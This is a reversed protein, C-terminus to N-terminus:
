FGGQPGAAPLNLVDAFYRGERGEGWAEGIFRFVQEIASKIELIQRDHKGALANYERKVSLFQKKGEGERGAIEMYREMLKGAMRYEEKQSLTLNNAAERGDREEQLQRHFTYIMAYLPLSEEPWQKKVNKLMEEARKLAREQEEARVLKRKLRGLLTELLFVRDEEGALAAKAALESTFDGKIITEAPYAAQCKLFRDYCLAFERAIEEDTIYQRILKGDVRFQKKEYLYVAESLDEWGRATAYEEGACSSVSYFWNRNRELFSLIAAHIGRGYAYSKWVNFDAEVRFWKMRDLAKLGFRGGNGGYEPPNGAAVVVWGEPLRRSGFKRYQLFHLMAPALAEPTGDIEDLFLIGERKGSEKMVEYVAAIIESMTYESVQWIRGEYEKKAIHPLGLVSQRTHHTMSCSVLAIDLESAAQEVIATKGIGPMGIMFVPRQKLFPISYEGQENKDLYIEATRKIEEKAEMINM